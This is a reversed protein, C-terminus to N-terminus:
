KVLAKKAMWQYVHPGTVRLLDDRSFMAGRSYKTGDIFSLLSVINDQQTENHQTTTAATSHEVGGEGGSIYTCPVHRVNAIFIRVLFSTRDCKWFDIDRSIAYSRPRM